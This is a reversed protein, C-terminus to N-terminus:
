YLLRSTIDSPIIRQSSILVRKFAVQVAKLRRCALSLRKSSLAPTLWYLAPCSHFKKSLSSSSQLLIIWHTQDFAATEDKLCFWLDNHFKICSWGLTSVRCYTQTHYLCPPSYKSGPWPVLETVCEHILMIPPPFFVFASHCCSTTDKDWCTKGEKM